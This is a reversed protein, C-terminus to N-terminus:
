EGNEERERIIDALTNRDIVIGMYHTQTETSKPADMTELWERLKEISVNKVAESAEQTM